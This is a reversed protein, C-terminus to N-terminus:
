NHRQSDQLERTKMQYSLKWMCFIRRRSKRGSSECNLQRYFLSDPKHKEGLSVVPRRRSNASHSISFRQQNQGWYNFYNPLTVRIKEWHEISFWWLGHQSEWLCSISPFVSRHETHSWIVDHHLTRTMETHMQRKLERKGMFSSSSKCKQLLENIIAMKWQDARLLVM